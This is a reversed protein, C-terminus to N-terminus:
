TPRRDTGFIRLAETTWETATMADEETTLRITDSGELGPRAASSM